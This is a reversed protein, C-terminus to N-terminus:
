ADLNKEAQQAASNANQYNQLMQDYQAVAAQYQANSGNFQSEALGYATAAKNVAEQYAAEPNEAYYKYKDIEQQAKTLQENAAASVSSYLAKAEAIKAPVTTALDARRAECRRDAVIKIDDMVSAVYNDYEESFPAYEASNKLTVYAETYYESNIAEEPVFIFCGLKGSGVNTYGREFSIYQPSRIIGVIEFQRQVLGSLDMGADEAITIVNGIRFSDPTSLGSADVLCQNSQNPFRGELLTVRNIYDSDDAGYYYNQLKGLNVGYARVTLQSGDLDTEPTDNVLLLGDAFKEGQAGKVEGIKKLASIDEDTLGYTCRIFIDMFNNDDFYREATRTMSPSTAKVGVFFGAGLAVIIILSIFRSMNHRLSRLMETLLARTM